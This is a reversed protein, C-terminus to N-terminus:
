PEFKQKNPVIMKLNVYLKCNRRSFEDAAHFADGIWIERRSFEDAARFVDGVWIERRSFEDAARFFMALGYTFVQGRCLFFMALGYKEEHFSTRLVFFCRGGM